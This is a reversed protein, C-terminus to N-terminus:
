RASGPAGQTRLVLLEGYLDGDALLKGIRTSQRDALRWTPTHGYRQALAQDVKEVRETWIAPIAPLDSTRLRHEVTLSSNVLLRALEDTTPFHNDEVYDPDITAEAVFVLLGIRGSTRVIRTLEGLLTGQHTTTCLVGLAWAADFTADPIPLATGVGQVVDHDFLTRAARCAGEEPEVLVTRVGKAEAVYAAPGGVGAGCDLLLDASTLAMREILWDLAAPSGSGRCAAPIYFDTGLDVAIRATWDAVTDFEASLAESM